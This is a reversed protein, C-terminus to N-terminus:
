SRAAATVAATDQGSPAHRAQWGPIQSTCEPSQQKNASCQPVCRSYMSLTYAGTDAVVIFDGVEAKPMLRCVMCILLLRESVHAVLRARTPAGPLSNHATNCLGLLNGCVHMCPPVLEQLTCAGSNSIQLRICAVLLWVSM